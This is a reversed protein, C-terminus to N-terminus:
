RGAALKIVDQGTIDVFSMTHDARMVAALGESFPGVALFQAPIVVKGTRDIYGWDGELEPNTPVQVNSPPPNVKFAALGESFRGANKFNLPIVVKGATDIFGHYGDMQVHALGESFYDAESFKPEIVFQGSHDIYGRKTSGYKTAVALGNHFDRGSFNNPPIVVRGKEDIYRSGGANFLAVCAVGESFPAVDDWQPEIIVNGTSADRYGYKGDRKFAQLVAPRGALRREDERKSLAGSRDVYYFGTKSEVSAIGQTFRGAWSFQPEIIWKGSRDIYGTQYIRDNEGVVAALGESFVFSDLSFDGLRQLRPVSRALQPKESSVVAKPSFAGMEETKVIAPQQDESATQDILSTGPNVGGQIAGEEGTHLPFLWWAALALLVVAAAAGIWSPRAVWRMLNSRVAAFQRREAPKAKSFVQAKVSEKLGAPPMLMWRLDAFITIFVQEEFSNENM